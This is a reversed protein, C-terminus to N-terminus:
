VKINKLLLFSLLLNKMDPLEFFIFFHFILTASHSLLTQLRQPSDSQIEFTSGIPNRSFRVEAVGRIKLDM